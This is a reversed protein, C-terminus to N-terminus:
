KQSFKCFEKYATRLMLLATQLIQDEDGVVGSEPQWDLSMPSTNGCLTSYVVTLRKYM